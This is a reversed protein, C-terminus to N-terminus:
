DYDNIETKEFDTLSDSGYHDIAGIPTIPFGMKSERM